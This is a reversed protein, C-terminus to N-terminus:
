YLFPVRACLFVLARPSVGKARQQAHLAPAPKSDTALDTATAELLEAHHDLADAFTALSREVQGRGTGLGDDKLLSEVWGLYPRVFLPAPSRM